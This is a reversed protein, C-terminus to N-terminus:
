QSSSVPGQTRPKALVQSPAMYPPRVVTRNELSLYPLRSASVLIFVRQNSMGRFNLTKVEVFTSQLWELLEWFCIMRCWDHGVVVVVVVIVRTLKSSLRWCLLSEFSLQCDIRTAPERVPPPYPSLSLSLEREPSKPTHGAQVDPARLERENHVPCCGRRYRSTRCSLGCQRLNLSKWRHSRRSSLVYQLLHYSQCSQGYRLGLCSRCRGCCQLNHRCCCETWRVRRVHRM